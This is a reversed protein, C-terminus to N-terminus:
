NLQKYPALIMKVWAMDDKNNVICSKQQLYMSVINGITSNKHYPSVLKQDSQSQFM